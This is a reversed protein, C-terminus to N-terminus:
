LNQSNLSRGNLHSTNKVSSSLSHGREATNKIHTLSKGTFYGKIIGTTKSDFHIIVYLSTESHSALSETAFTLTYRGYHDRSPTHLFIINEPYVASHAM